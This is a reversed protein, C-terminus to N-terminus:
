YCAIVITVTPYFARDLDRRFITYLVGVALSLSM